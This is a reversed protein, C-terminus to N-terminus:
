RRRRRRRQAAGGWCVALPADIQSCFAPKTQTGNTAAQTTAAQNPIFSMAEALAEKRSCDIMKRRLCLQIM